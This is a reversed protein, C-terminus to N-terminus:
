KPAGDRDPDAWDIRSESRGPWLQKRHTRTFEKWIAQCEACGCEGELVPFIELLEDVHRLHERTYADIASTRQHPNVIRPGEYAPADGSAVFYFEVEKAQTATKGPREQRQEAERELDRHKRRHRERQRAEAIMDEGSREDPEKQVKPVPDHLFGILDVMDGIDHGPTCWHARLTGHGLKASAIAHHPWQLAPEVHSRYFYADCKHCSWGWERKGNRYNHQWGVRASEIFLGLSSLARAPYTQKAEPPRIVSSFECEACRLAAEVRLDHLVNLEHCRYCEHVAWAVEAHIEGRPRSNWRLDGGLVNGLFQPLLLSEDGIWRHTSGWASVSLEAELNVQVAPVDRHVIYDGRRVLWYCELGDREYRSQRMRYDAATQSALQVEFAIRRDGKEVLVDAIWSRDAAAVEARANWGLERAITVIASKVRLHEPSEGKHEDDRPVYLHAFFQTGLKSTKVVAEVGCSLLPRPKRGKMGVWDSESVFPALIEEGNLFATLPM